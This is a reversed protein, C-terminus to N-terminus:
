REWPRGGDEGELQVKLAFFQLVDKLALIGCLRGDERVLLRSRGARSMTKLADLVDADPAVCTEDSCPVVFEQLRHSPWESAPVRAVDALTVAGLLRGDEVVPFMKFRHRYVYDHVFADVTLHPEVTVPDAKMFARVPEGKLLERLLVQEYSGAAAQRLWLGLFFLWLAGIWNGALLQLGGLAMLAVGVGRGLRSAIRTARRLNGTSRWVLSRFVRGGDLPFAPLMNFAALLTNALLLWHLLARAPAPLPIGAVFPLAFLLALAASLAPGAVAVWFETQPTPPEDRLDGVGGFIFLTVSGVRLGHRRAVLAHAFEHLLICLFLGLAGAAATVWAVGPSLGPHLTPFFGAALSWTILVLAIIWSADLRVPIGLPRGITVRAPM